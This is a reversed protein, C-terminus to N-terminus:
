LVASRTEVSGFGWGNEEVQSTKWNLGSLFANVVAETRFDAQMGFPGMRGVPVAPPISTDVYEQVADREGAVDAEADGSQVCSLPRAPEDDRGSMRAAMTELDRLVDVLDGANWWGLWHMELRVSAINRLKFLASLQDRIPAARQMCVLHMGTLNPLHVRVSLQRIDTRHQWLAALHAFSRADWGAQVNITIDRILSLQADSVPTICLPWLAAHVPYTTFMHLTLFSNHRLLVLNAEEFIQRNLLLININL